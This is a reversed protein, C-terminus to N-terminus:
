RRQAVVDDAANAEPQVRQFQIPAVAPELAVEFGSIEGDIGIQFTLLRPPEESTDEETSLVDLTNYHLHNLDFTLGNYLAKLNEAEQTIQIEGYGPHTYAGTYAATAHTMPANPKRTEMVQDRMAKIQARGQDGLAEIRQRWDSPEFGLLMDMAAMGIGMSLADGGNNFVIVGLQQRPLFEVESIFGDIGGNHWVRPYGRYTDAVWGLCYAQDGIEPMADGLSTPTPMHPKHMQKLQATSVLPSGDGMHIQLWKVMDDLNSNINGAPGVADLSRYPIREVDGQERHIRYPRAANDDAESESVSLQSRGMDLPDFINAKTFAEWTEGTIAEVLVGATMYMLNQYQMGYRFPQSPQLYRLRAYLDHRSFPSGYWMLDHRPLGGRHCLLDRATMQQSAIPDQLTFDPIYDRLPKDWDLKGQEVLIALTMATFAKTCSGIAFVTDTDVPLNHERDRLGYGKKHLVEGKHIVAVAVGPVHWRQMQEEVYADLKALSGPVFETSM